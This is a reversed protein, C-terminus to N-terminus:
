TADDQQKRRRGQSGVRVAISACLYPRFSAVSPADPRCRTLWEPTEELRAVTEREQSFADTRARVLVSSSRKPEVVM